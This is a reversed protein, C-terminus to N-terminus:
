TGGRLVLVARSGPAEKRGRFIGWCLSPLLKGMFGLLKSPPRLSSLTQLFPTIWECPRPIYPAGTSPMPLKQGPM